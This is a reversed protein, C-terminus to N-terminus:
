TSSLLTFRKLTSFSPSQLLDISVFRREKPVNWANAKTGPNSAEGNRTLSQNGNQTM